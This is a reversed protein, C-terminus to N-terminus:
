EKVMFHCKEKNLILNMVECRKPVKALNSLCVENTNGFILFDDMFVEVFNEVMDTFIGMM